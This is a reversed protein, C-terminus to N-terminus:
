VMVLYIVREDGALRRARPRMVSRPERCGGSSVCGKDVLVTNIM